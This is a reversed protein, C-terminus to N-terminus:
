AGTAIIQAVIAQGTTYLAQFDARVTSWIEVSDTGAIPLSKTTIQRKNGFAFGPKFILQAATNNYGSSAGGSVGSSSKLDQREQESVIIPIGMLKALEGNLITAFQGYKDVTQTQSVKMFIDFLGNISTVWALNGLSVGYKGLKRRTNLLAGYSAGGTGDVTVSGHDVCFARYGDWMRAPSEADLSNGHMDTVDMRSATDCSVDGNIVTDETARILAEVINAKLNPLIPIISDEELEIDFVARATLKEPTFTVNRTSRTSARFKTPTDTGSATTRYAKLDTTAGPIKWSGQKQPITYKPHLGLVVMALHYVEILDASFGTPIWDVGADGSGISMAKRVAETDAMFDKYIKSQRIDYFENRAAKASQMLTNVLYIDSARSQMEKIQEASVGDSRVPQVLLDKFGMRKYEAKSLIDAPDYGIKVLNEHGSMSLRDATKAEQMKNKEEMVEALKAKLVENENKIEADTKDSKANEEVRQKIDHIEKLLKDLDSM